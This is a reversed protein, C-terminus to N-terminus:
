ISVVSEAPFWGMVGKENTAILWSHVIENVHLVDGAEQVLETPNYDKTLKGGSVFLKPVYTAHGDIECASWGIFHKCDEGMLVQTGAKFTPFKGEGAHDAIVKVIM